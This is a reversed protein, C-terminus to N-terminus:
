FTKLNGELGSCLLARQLENTGNRWRCLDTGLSNLFLSIKKHSEGQEFTLNRDVNVITFSKSKQLTFSNVSKSNVTENVKSLFSEFLSVSNIYFELIASNRFLCENSEDFVLNNWLISENKGCLFPSKQFHTFLRNSPFQSITQFNFSRQTFTDHQEITCPSHSSLRLM